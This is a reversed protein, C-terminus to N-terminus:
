TVTVATLNDGTYTLTKSKYAGTGVVSVLKGGSYNFTKTGLASTLTSVTGDPNYTMSVTVDAGSGPTGPSGLQSVEVVIPAVEVEVVYVDLTSM